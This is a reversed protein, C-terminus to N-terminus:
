LLLPLLQLVLLCRLVALDCPLLLRSHCCHSAPLVSEKVDVATFWVLHTLSRKGHTHIM